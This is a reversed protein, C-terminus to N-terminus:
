TFFVGNGHVTYGDTGVARTFRDGNAYYLSLHNALFILHCSCIVISGVGDM